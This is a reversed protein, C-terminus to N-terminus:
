RAAQRKVFQQIIWGGPILSLLLLIFELPFYFIAVLVSQAVCLGFGNHGDGNDQGVCLPTLNLLGLALVAILWALLGQGFLWLWPHRQWHGPVLGPLFLGLLFSALLFVAAVAYYVKWYYDHDASLYILLGWAAAPLVTFFGSLLRILLSM